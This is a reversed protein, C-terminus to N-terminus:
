DSEYRTAVKSRLLWCNRTNVCELNSSDGENEGGTTSCASLLALSSIIFLMISLKKLNM